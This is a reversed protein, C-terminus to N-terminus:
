SLLCLDKFLIRKAAFDKTGERRRSQRKWHASGAKLYFRKTKERREEVGAGVSDVSRHPVM